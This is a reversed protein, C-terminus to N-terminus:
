SYIWSDRYHVSTIILKFGDGKQGRPVRALKLPLSLPLLTKQELVVAIHWHWEFIWLSVCSHLSQM